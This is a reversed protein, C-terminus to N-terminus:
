NLQPPTTSELLPPINVRRFDSDTGFTEIGSPNNGLTLSLWINAKWQPYPPQRSSRLVGRYPVAPLSIHTGQISRRDIQSNAWDSDSYGDVTVVDDADNGNFIIGQEQTGNLYRFVRKAATWHETSPDHMFQSLTQIAFGLDPRTGMAAYMISGVATQYKSRDMRNEDTTLTMHISHDVPTNVPKLGTMDFRDLIKRIYNGQSIKITRAKRDRSIEIGLLLRPEGQDTAEFETYIEAKCKNLRATSTTAFILDDVWVGVIDYDNGSRRMYVCRDKEHRTYGLKETLFTNLRINWERGSQKLGYLTKRLRCVRGSGDDYGPPQTM